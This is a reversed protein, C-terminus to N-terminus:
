RSAGAGAPQAAVAPAASGAAPAAAAPPCALRGVDARCSSPLRLGEAGGTAPRGPGVEAIVGARLRIAVNETRVTEEFRERRANESVAAVASLSGSLQPTAPLVGNYFLPLRSQDGAGDNFFSYGSEGAQSASPGALFVVTSGPAADRPLLQVYGAALGDSRAGLSKGGVNANIPADASGFPLASAFAQPLLELVLGPASNQIGFGSDNYWLRAAVRSDDVTALRSASLRLLDAELGQGGVVIEQGALTIRSQGVAREGDLSVPAWGSNWDAGSLAQLSGAFRNDVNGLTISGGASAQLVLGAGTATSIRSAAGQTIVDDAVQLLRGQLPDVAQRGSELPALLSYGPAGNARLTLTGGDLQLLGDLRTDGTAASSQGIQVRRAEILSDGSAAGEDALTVASAQRDARVAAPTAPATGLRLEGLVLDRWVGDAGRGASLRLQGAHVSLPMLTWQNDDHLAEIAQGPASLTIPASANVTVPGGYRQGGRTTALSGGLTVPGDAALAAVTESGRLLLSAGPAVQLASADPLREDGTTALGGALVRTAGTYANGTAGLLLLGSGAQELAGSGTILNDLALTDSRLVRLLGDNHLAGRGLSGSRGGEGLQLTGADIRTDGHAQDASLVWTGTGQKALTGAGSFVGSFRQVTAADGVGAGVQLTGGADALRVQAAAGSAAEAADVLAGLTESGALTLTTGAAMQLLPLGLLQSTGTTGLTGSALQLLPTALSGGAALTLTGAVRTHESAQVEAALTALGQAQLTRTVLPSSLLGGDLTVSQTAVLAGGPEAALAQASRDARGAPAAGAAATSLVSGALSLTAVTAPAGLQLTAPADIRLATAGSGLAQAETSRLLGAELRLVPSDIVGGAGLSLTGGQLVASESLTLAATLASDGQSSFQAAQAPLALTGDALALAGGLALRGGGAVRSGGGVALSAATEAGALQLLSGGALALAAGSGLQGAAVTVVSAGGGLQLQAAQLLGGTGLTLTGGEVVAAGAVNLPALVQVQNRSALTATALPTRLTGGDITSAGSVTMSGSGSLEGSLSLAQVNVATDLRLTARDAVQVTTDATLLDASASVLVGSNVQFLGNGSGQGAMALTGGGEKVLQGSGTDIRGSFQTDISQRVTLVHRDLVLQAPLGAGVGPLDALAGITEAGGLTFRTGVALQLAGADPLRQDGATALAGAQLETGGGHRNDGALTLSGAGAKRLTAGAAGADSFAGNIRAAVGDAVALTGGGAGLAIGRTAALTLDADLRLTAGDLLLQDATALAPARGLQGDRSIALTGALVQTPGQRAHDVAGDFALTGAGAKTLPAAGAREDVRGAVRLTHGAAVDIRGGAAGLQLPRLADLAFSDQAQLSGGDLQLAATAAGLLNDRALALTGAQVVTGGGHTNAQEAVLQLLGGGTKTLVGAAGPAADTVRGALGLVAGDGVQLTGGGTGLALGRHAHLTTSAGPQLALTAGDLRLQDARASAPAAGLQDDRAILLTSGQVATAGSHTNASSGDLSFSGGGQLRLAGDQAAFPGTADAIHSAIQLSLGSGLQLTGGAAGLQLTRAAGLRLSDRLALTGGDLLLGAADAGLQGDRAIALTSALVRTGGSHRNDLAGTFALTGGGGLTLTGADVGDALPGAVDVRVGAPLLLTGGAGQLTLGRSAALTTDALIQLTGGDLLLQDAVLDAPARGLQADGQVVLTGGRVASRGTYTNAGSLTLTGGGQKVLGGSGQLVGAFSAASGAPTSLRLSGPSLDVTGTGSLGAIDADAQLALTSADNVHYTSAAAAATSSALALTGQAVTTAGSREDRGALTFTGSGAKTLSGSGSLVGEFRTSSGDDGTSLAFGALAVDGAGALSGLVQDSQLTLRAGAALTTASSVGATGEPGLALTGAQVTTAGTYSSAGALTLTGGGQKTLGGSGQLRGAYETSAGNAGASLTFGALQVTGAGALAGVTESAQLQLTSTNGMQLTGADGLAQGGVAVLTGAQLLLDGAGLHRGSLTLTGAGTKSLTRAGGADALDGSLALGAGAVAVTADGGLTVPGSVTASGASNALTGALLLPVGLRAGNRLDLTAASDVQVAASGTRNVGGELQLTGSAVVTGGSATNDGALVLTGPGQLTLSGPGDIAGGLSLQTGGVTLTSNAALTMAGASAASGSSSGLATGGGLQWANDVQRGALDVAAGAAVSVPGTGFPGAVLAGAAGTSSAAAVLGGAAVTTGGSYTNAGGLTLTGTGAKTLAGSGSILGDFRTDLHKGGVVLAQSGLALTGGGALAGFVQDSQLTLQAGAAVTVASGAGATGAPGLVLTGAQVETAGTYPNAASLTLQGGGQKVLGGSGQLPGAFGTSAGNGGASLTFRDLQVTGAGDLAGVTESAQLQLTSGAALQLTGADGLAQGGAAVLMGAQVDLGGASSNRGSLTLTGTGTKGLTRAAGDDAVNGSLTLGAGDVQLTANGGLTLAGSATAAPEGAAVRLTGSLTMPVTLQAGGQLDLVAGAAVQLPGLGARNSGGMLQLTGGAVTTGGTSTNSGALVLTGPGQQTLAGSGSLAGSLRLQSGGVALTSDALLTLAGASAASGSSSLLATGGGLQWANDVQLGALEVAAGAAVSVTGTGFPGATLAGAVGSSGLGAVLTGAAVTTGGSYTNAGGLTLTGTGAKGLSGSGRIRGDFRSSGGDGGLSLAFSGLAVEGSGALTGLAQDAQLLLQTGAALDVMSALNVVSGPGLVLTGGQVTTAGTYSSAGALTLTGGGQKTLGGSGQLRGAYETSAGNAGASLTFGALQVTGAGALAGVTESAQLQLTSTNGMQLTGADGLAQGGVAVLTGAQLLLDGAGLHRGSLTLTGAGTKSLTRAGGADALDGSLALGAGAVAVTADGGLTVPGSVTASGASNALTGALLLPVGLRAGNRLDLTAASDVQVAASGTRNVGGELQLTGSAVVTGGSATNDGALVLTGPGQLTLSGPGDIAGGLSLQTGGVTLTSNAALTMAGASAASGSSSGLATGGGLQWANDVQRGALDVAAGAAVSVPGTGFPGAVLAGAAGTSSAAAVLGGAAVTTGGSYTNAGGLTLTGTGAKTLAGSGSILGDFRTDLHKGGVVLAQSGLALTGGGALAGFVQDSQLTLQAGAAVTVASGAGATGAPGLVLTGAQVETAGTYPNAASLTLQGGGQKVLGGSGQLPGAFGTSAGNGGASLTFRDLQVTGAGDLAGVTESAQLQLTSGAALQLTGADGLAQGGAAVLMGAQVDLGGASSNRGSLTLTGTGTKGLTRAAGDDAVNGSLTLGAGDVQLTANGGLTLAGSATAAPEGAAVRLTGSLTMPVTLQAGGQLDLVAGAAVQLPGLGARNSGGMLQLTGGAVTTGGTSTNSGALVLTGPGQQTLAGSGSLAGSLRLQSGGVALTSDALLTLAGASAASGSSSLLATGGGLQWANDVQLGALEVAAGAAVSVTGTGFPGATLAGAVGSSGLGAVLTGAAVTTGGSYTNAGGLTLTGTGAQTLRGSGSIPSAVLIDDSRAFTLAGLNTVAGQLWGSVGGEGVQLTGGSVQLGAGPAWDGTVILTGSGRKEVRGAGDLNGVWRQDAGRDVILSSGAALTTNGTATRAGTLRLQGSVLQLAGSGGLSGGLTLTDSRLVSLSGQNAIDGRVSGANGGVGLRLASGSAIITSGTYDQDGSFSLTGGGAQTVGGAGTILGDFALDGARRFVLRAPALVTVTGGVSGTGGGDGLQLTGASVTTGGTHGQNATLVLTGTGAQELRGSGSVTGTFVVDDSRQFSLLGDNVVNGALAGSRGGNGIRLSGALVATGGGHGATGTLSLTGNGVKSLGRPTVGDDALDGSLTLAAGDGAGLAADGALTISGSSAAATGTSNRLAGLGGAGSGALSWANNVVFGALDVSAGDAVTVRGTGFAGSAAVGPGSAVSAVGAVLSGASVTTGGTYSSAGSLTLTGTGAQHLAGDGSLRGSLSLADSRQVQLTSGSAIAVDGALSGQSGGTGIQLRGNQIDTGGGPAASGALVLSGAGTKALRGSGSLDGSLTLTGGALDVGLTADGSLTM